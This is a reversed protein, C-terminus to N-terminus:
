ADPTRLGAPGAGAPKHMVDLWGCHFSGEVAAGGRDAAGHQEGSAIGNRALLRRGEGVRGPDGVQAIAAVLIGDEV